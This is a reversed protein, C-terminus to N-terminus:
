KVRRYKGRGIREAEGLLILLGGFTTFNCGGDDRGHAIHETWWSKAIEGVRCLEAYAAELQSNTIWKTSKAGDKRPITYAVAREGDKIGVEKITYTRKSEPKPLKTGAALKAIRDILM